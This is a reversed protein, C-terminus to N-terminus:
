YLEELLDMLTLEPRAGRGIEAVGSLSGINEVDDEGVMAVLARPGSM